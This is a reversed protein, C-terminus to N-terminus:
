LETRGDRVRVGASFVASSFATPIYFNEVTEGGKVARAARLVDPMLSGMFADIIFGNLLGGSVLALMDNKEIPM